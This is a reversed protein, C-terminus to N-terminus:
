ETIMSCQMSCNFSIKALTHSLFPPHHHLTLHFGNFVTKGGPLLDNVGFNFASSFNGGLRQSQSYVFVTKVLNEVHSDTGWLSVQLWNYCTPAWQCLLSDPDGISFWLVVSIEERNEYPKMTSRREAMSGCLEPWQIDWGPKCNEEIHRIVM